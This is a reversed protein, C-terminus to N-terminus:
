IWIDLLCTPAIQTSFLWPRLITTINMPTLWFGKIPPGFGLLRVAFVSAQKIMVAPAKVLEEVSAISVSDPSIRNFTDMLHFCFLCDM